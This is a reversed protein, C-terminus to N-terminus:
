TYIMLYLIFPLARSIKTAFSDRITKLQQQDMSVPSFSTSLCSHEMLKASFVGNIQTNHILQFIQLNTKIRGMLQTVLSGSLHKLHTYISFNFNTISLLM